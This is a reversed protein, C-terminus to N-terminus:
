RLLLLVGAALATLGSVLGATAPVSLPASLVGSALIGGLAVAVGAVALTATWGAWVFQTLSSVNQIGVDRAAVRGRLIADRVFLAGAVTIVVGTQDLALRADMGLAVLVAAVILGFVLLAAPRLLDRWPVSLSVLPEVNSPASNGGLPARNRGRPTPRPPTDYQLREDLEFRDALVGAVTSVVLIGFVAVGFVAPVSQGTGADAALALASVAVAGVLSGVGVPVVPVEWGVYWVFWTLVTLGSAVVGLLTVTALFGVVPESGVVSDVAPGTASPVRALVVLLAVGGTGAATFVPWRLRPGPPAFPRGRLTARIATPVVATLFAIVGGAALLWRIAGPGGEGPAVLLAEVAAGPGGASVVRETVAWASGLALVSVLGSAGLLEVQRPDLRGVLVSVLSIGVALATLSVFTTRVSGALGVTGVAGVVGLPLAATAAATWWPSRDLGRISVGLAVGALFAAGLAPVRVALAGIAVLTAIAVSGATTRPLGTSATNM